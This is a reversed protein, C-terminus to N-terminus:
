ALRAGRPAGPRALARFTPSISRLQIWRGTTQDVHFTGDVTVSRGTYPAIAAAPIIEVRDQHDNQIVFYPEAGDSFAVITGHVVVRHGAYAAQHASLQALSM